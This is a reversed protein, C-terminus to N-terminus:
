ISAYYTVRLAHSTLINCKTGNQIAGNTCQLSAVTSAPAACLWWGTVVTVLFLMMMVMVASCLAACLYSGSLPLLILVGNENKEKRKRKKDRKWIQKKHTRTNCKANKHKFTRIHTDAHTQSHTLSISHTPINLALQISQAQWNFTYCFLTTNQSHHKSLM